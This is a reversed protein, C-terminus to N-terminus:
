SVSVRVKSGLRSCTEYLSIYGVRRDIEALERGTPEFRSLGEEFNGHVFHARAIGGHSDFVVLLRDRRSLRVQIQEPQVIMECDAPERGAAFEALLEAFRVRAKEEKWNTKNNNMTKARM